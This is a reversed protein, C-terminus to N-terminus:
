GTHLVHHPTSRAAERFTRSRAKPNGHVCTTAPERGHRCFAAIKHPRHCACKTRILISISVPPHNREVRCLYGPLTPNNKARNRELVLFLRGRRVFVTAPVNNPTKQSRCERPASRPFRRRGGRFDFHLRTTHSAEGGAKRLSVSVISSHPVGRPKESRRCRNM